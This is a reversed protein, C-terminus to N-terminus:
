APRRNPRLRDPVPRLRPGGPLFAIAVPKKMPNRYFPAPPDNWPNASLGIPSEKRGRRACQFNRNLPM